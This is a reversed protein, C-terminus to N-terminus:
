EDEDIPTFGDVLHFAAIVGALSDWWGARTDVETQSFGLWLTVQGEPSARGKRARSEM